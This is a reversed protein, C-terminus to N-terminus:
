LEGTEMAVSVSQFKGQKPQKKAQKSQKATETFKLRSDDLITNLITKTSNCFQTRYQVTTLSCDPTGRCKQEECASVVLSFLEFKERSMEKDQM